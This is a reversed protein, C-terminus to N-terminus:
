RGGSNQTLRFLIAALMLFMVYSMDRLTFAGPLLVIVGSLTMFILIALERATRM